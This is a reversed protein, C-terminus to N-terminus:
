QIVTIELEIRPDHADKALRSGDWSEILRDNEIVGYRQLADGLGKQYNDLDGCARDRYFVARVQVPASIPEKLGLRTKEMEIFYRARAIWKQYQKSPAFVPRGKVSFFVRSNGKTRPAGAIVLRM